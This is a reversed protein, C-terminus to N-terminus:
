LAVKQVTIYCDITSDGVASDSDTFFSLTDNEVYQPQGYSPVGSTFASEPLIIVASSWQAAGTGITTSSIYLLTSTFPTIGAKFNLDLWIVRYYFGIGPAPLGVIAIPVSNATQIQAATLTQKINIPIQSVVVVDTPNTGAALNTIKKAGADNGVTLVQSLDQSGGGGGVQAWGTKTSNGTIKQWLEGSGGNDRTYIDGVSGIINTNPALLGGVLQFTKGGQGVIKIM